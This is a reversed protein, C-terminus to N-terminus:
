TTPTSPSASDSVATTSISLAGALTSDECSFGSLGKATVTFIVEKNIYAASRMTIKTLDTGADKCAVKIVDDASVEGKDSVTLKYSGSAPIANSPDSYYVQVASIITQYNDLDAAQRSKEVYKLYQPALVGVLVAMIAIVIILEVLSFGSNNLRKNKTNKM